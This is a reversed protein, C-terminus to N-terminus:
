QQQSHTGEIATETKLTAATISKSPLGLGWRLIERESPRVRKTHLEGLAEYTKRLSILNRMKIKDGESLPPFM